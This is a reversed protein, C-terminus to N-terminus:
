ETPQSKKARARKQHAAGPRKGAAMDRGQGKGKGKSQRESATNIKPFAGVNERGLFNVLEFWGDGGALDLELFDGPREAFYDRIRQNQRRYVDKVIEENGFISEVGYMWHRLANTGNPFHSSLSSVWKDPDRYTMIFKSEPYREDMQRFFFPMPSDNLGDSKDAAECVAELFKDELGSDGKVIEGDKERANIRAPANRLRIGLIRLAYTLSTTGTKQFGVVFVKNM